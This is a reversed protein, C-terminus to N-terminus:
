LLRSRRGVHGKAKSRAMTRSKNLPQTGPSQISLNSKFVRSFHLPLSSRRSRGSSRMQRTSPNTVPRIDIQQKLKLGVDVGPHCYAYLGIDSEEVLVEDAGFLEACRTLSGRDQRDDEVITQFWPVRGALDTLQDGRRRGEHPLIAGTLAMGNGM